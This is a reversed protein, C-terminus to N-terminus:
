NWWSDGDNLVSAVALWIVAVAVIAVLLIWLEELVIAIIGAAILAMTLLGGGYAVSAMWWREGERWSRRARRDDHNDQRTM